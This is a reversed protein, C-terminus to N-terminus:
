AFVLFPSQPNGTPTLAEAPQSNHGAKSGSGAPTAPVVHWFEDHIVTQSGPFIAVPRLLILHLHFLFFPKKQFCTFYIIQFGYSIQLGILHIMHNPGYLVCNTTHAMRYPLLAIHYPRYWLEYHLDWIGLNFSFNNIQTLFKEKSEAKSLSTM